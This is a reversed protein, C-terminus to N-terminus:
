SKRNDAYLDPDERELQNVSKRANLMGFTSKEFRRFDERKVMWVSDFKLMAEIM